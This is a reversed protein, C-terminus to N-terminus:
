FQVFEGDEGAGERVVKLVKVGDPKVMPLAALQLVLANIREFSGPSGDGLSQGVIKIQQTKVAVEKLQIGQPTQRRLQELLASSARVAVLQEAIQTNEKRIVATRTQLQKLQKQDLLLRQELPQLRDLEIQQQSEQWDLWATVALVALLLLTGLGIGKVLLSRLQPVLAPQAPLGLEQRREQLLNWEARTLAAMLVAGLRGGAGLM